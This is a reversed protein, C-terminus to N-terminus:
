PLVGSLASLISEKSLTSEEEAVYYGVLYKITGGETVRERCVVCSQGIGPVGSLAHEVEGLEIRYGRIKVQDDNRGLYELNGDSLWRVLDGTKYLRTYGKAKDAETCFPNAIFREATLESRNLYGRSLGAGGIYLEGSVGVPVPNGNGDLVYVQTNSIPRGINTNLDGSEYQHMSVCVTGETPGYANILRRGIRWRRLLESSSSEGAVILTELDSFEAHPIAILLAPPLTAINIHHNTIYEGLLSADQRIDPPLISLEAGLLLASFIESVSADFVLSAFQLVKSESNTELQLQQAFVLNIVGQHEVMVGKPLGTTGSTYIVYALDGSGSYSPIASSDEARYFAETLDIYVVKDEPLIFEEKEQLGRQSLVLASGTDSLIYDIRDQPYGPDIPVYAGGAKLVGLIGIVMELSREM